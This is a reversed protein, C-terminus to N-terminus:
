LSDRYEKASKFFEMIAKGDSDMIAKKINELSEIYKDLFATICGANTLCINQWMEPSSSSIRTIDKFGGAALKGYMGDIDHAAVVNVLSAAIVHPCHSIAATILDHTRYDMIECHSGSAKVFGALWETFEEPTDDEPALIYYAGKLLSADSNDYGTKESGTMPHGGIFNHTLGLECVAKHIDGKVSGVDTILCDKRIYPALQKLYSVNTLVPACLFIVDCKSFDELSTSIGSLVGDKKALELRPHPKTIYYNYAMIYSSPYLNRLSQAISGGILGFGTFGFNLTKKDMIPKHLTCDPTNM